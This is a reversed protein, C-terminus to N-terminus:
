VAGAPSSRRADDFHKLALDLRIKYRYEETVRGCDFITRKYVLYIDSFRDAPYNVCIYGAFGPLQSRTLAVPDASTIPVNEFVTEANHLM